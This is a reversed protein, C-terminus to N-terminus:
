MTVNSIGGFGWCKHGSHVYSPDKGGGSWVTTLSHHRAAQPWQPVFWSTFPPFSGEQQQVHRSFPVCAVTPLLLELGPPWTKLCSTKVPRARLGGVTGGAGEGEGGKHGRWKWWSMNRGWSLRQNVAFVSGSHVELVWALCNMKALYQTIHKCGDPLGELIVHRHTTLLSECTIALLRFADQIKKEGKRKSNEQRFQGWKTSRAFTVRNRQCAM